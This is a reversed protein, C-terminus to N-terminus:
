SILFRANARARDSLGFKALGFPFDVSVVLEGEWAISEIQPPTIIQM